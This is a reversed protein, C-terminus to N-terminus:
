AERDKPWLKSLSFAFPLFPPASVTENDVFAKSLLWNTDIRQFVELTRAVPDVYWLCEVGFEAYIRRKPGIDVSRTSPSQLECIWDPAVEYWPGDETETFRESRWGALDPVVIHEGLHLEPEDLIVWGGPGDQGFQFPSGIITGIASAAFIHPRAPRPHTHLVGYLIEGTVNPPLAQIDAYTAQRSKTQVM